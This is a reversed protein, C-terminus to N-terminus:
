RARLCGGGHARPEHVDIDFGLWLDDRSEDGQQALCDTGRNTQRQARRRVWRPEEAQALKQLEPILLALILLALILLVQELLALAFPVGLARRHM